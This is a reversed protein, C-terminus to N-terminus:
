GIRQRAEEILRSVRSQSLVIQVMEGEALVADGQYTAVNCVIRKGDFETTRAVCTVKAGIAAMSKHEITIGAGIANEGPEFFPEIVKRAAVEMYYATTVTSLVPHIEVGDLCATMEKTVTFTLTHKAKAVDSHMTVVNIYSLDSRFIAIRPAMGFDPTKLYGTSVRRAADGM